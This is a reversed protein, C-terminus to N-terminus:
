DNQVSEFQDADMPHEKLFREIVNTVKLAQLLPGDVEVERLLLARHLPLKSQILQTMTTGTFRFCIRPREGNPDLREVIPKVSDEYARLVWGLRDPGKLLFGISTGGATIKKLWSEDFHAPVFEEFYYQALRESYGLVKREGTSPQGWRRYKGAKLVKEFYDQDLRVPPLQYRGAVEFLNRTRVQVNDLLMKRLTGSLNLDDGEGAVVDQLGAARAAYQLWEQNLTAQMNVINCIRPRNEDELYRWFMLSAIDAPLFSLMSDPNFRLRLRREVAGTTKEAIQAVERFIGSPGTFNLTEGNTAYGSIMPIRVLYWPSLSSELGQLLMQEYHQCVGEWQTLPKRRTFEFEEPVVGDRQVGGWISSILYIPIGKLTKLLHPLQAAAWHARPARPEDFNPPLGCFVIADYKTARNLESEDVLKIRDQFTRFKEHGGLATELMEHATSKLDLPVLSFLNLSSKTAVHLHWGKNVLLAALPGSFSSIPGWLYALKQTM